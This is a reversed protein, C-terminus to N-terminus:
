DNQVESKTFRFTALGLALVFWFLMYVRYNYWTYDFVSQMLFGFMVSGFMLLLIRNRNKTDCKKMTSILNRHYVFLLFVFYILGAIGFSTMLQMFLSHSHPAVIGQSGFYPYVYNFATEGIGLGSPWFKHLLALTGEYIKLRYSTSSDSLNGMSLVRDIINQPMMVIGVPIGLVLLAGLIKKNYMWLFVVVTIAIGAYCGRSYTLALTVLCILTALICAMRYKLKDFYIALGAFLPTVLLLFEGFVNPNAFTSYIRIQLDEFLSTDTWTTDVQGSFYQYLGIGCAVLSGLLLATLACILDHSSKVSRLIIFIGSFLVVWMLAVRFSDGPAYSFLGSIVCLVAFVFFMIDIYSIKTKTANNLVRQFLHVFILVVSLTMCVGTGFIPLCFLILSIVFLPKIYVLLFLGASAALAVASYLPPLYMGSVIAVAGLFMMVFKNQPMTEISAKLDFFRGVFTGAVVAQLSAHVFSLPIMIVALVGFVIGFTIKADIFAAASLSILWFLLLKALDGVSIHVLRIATRYMFHLIKGSRWNHEELNAPAFVSHSFKEDLDGASHLSFVVSRAYKNSIATCIKCLFSSEYVTKILNGIKRFFKM